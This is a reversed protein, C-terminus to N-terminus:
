SDARLFLEFVHDAEVTLDWRVTRGRVVADTGADEVVFGPPVEIEVALRVPAISTQHQYTLQYRGGGDWVEWAEAIEWDYSLNSMEGVGLGVWTSTVPHGLEAEVVSERGEWGPGPGEVMDCSAACYTSLLVLAEGEALFSVNPGVVYQPLGAVDVTNVHGVDAHGRASGDSRLQVGYTIRRELFAGLKTASGDNAVVSLFDGGEVPFSGAVGLRTLREQVHPDVAHILVHEDAIASALREVAARPDGQVGRGLFQEFAGTAVEGLLRKRRESSQIQAYADTVLFRVIRRAPVTAVGPVDIEGDPDLLLELAYPDVLITGDLEAGQVEAYLQEIQEAAAPFDPTMNLNRWVGTGGYRRYRDGVSAEPAALPSPILDPLDQIPNFPGFEFAGEDIVLISWAGVLGGSGRPEAPNAAGVFYSRPEQAGMFVPIIEAMTAAQEVQAVAPRVMDLFRDRADAVQEVLGRDPVAEVRAQAESFATAASRLAPGLDEWPQLPIRGGTPALGEVSDRVEAGIETLALGAQVVHEASLVLAEVAVLNPRAIPLGAAARVPLSQVQGRARALPRAARELHSQAVETNLDQLAARALRIEHEARTLDAQVSRISLATLAAWCVLLLLGGILVARAWLRLGRHRDDSGVAEAASSPEDPRDLDTSDAM